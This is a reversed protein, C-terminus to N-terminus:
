FKASFQVFELYPINSIKTWFVAENFDHVM